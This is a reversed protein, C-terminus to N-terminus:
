RNCDYRSPKDVFIAMKKNTVNFDHHVSYINTGVTFETIIVSTTGNLRPRMQCTRTKIFIKERMSFLVIPFLLFFCIVNRHWVRTLNFNMALRELSTTFM